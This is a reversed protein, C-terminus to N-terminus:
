HRPEVGLLHRVFFDMRRRAPYPREGVGHGAGPVILLDFDKDARVLADVVQMTSSPDVNRDLEGVTLLLKGTLNQAHTVNSNDAYEAGVPWGMWAENWWIKDMRNDHCGCDAAAVKYFDGHFLLAGLANQGGASGGFIGVRSLDMEPHKDAAARLWAIRDPFGADKLNKWCVDHFARSRWNTGMGDIQVVIFGLEALAHEREQLGWAKPVFFDQPGAYIKEVVPYKGEADFHSPRIIIGHIDTMGDRGKSFFREPMQWGTAVLESADAKELECVLSGDDAKRLETVPPQDVRSWGDIFFRRDPSFEWSHTGDGETLVTLGSGDCNVRALHVYYPDQGARIGMAKFWIQRKELDVRVVERMVWNGRTIQNKVAGTASDILYLHNWGDRESAWILEGTEDLWELYTKQSYDIFTESKEEVIVKVEGSEADVTLLRMLQHGRQNYLVAFRRSYPFWHVDSISWPSPFLEDNVPVAVRRTLDFLRPRSQAIRDGPKLYDYDHLKPQLQDRPSSEVLYVKREQAPKERMAVFKSGDPSWYFPERYRDDESGDHSLQIEENTEANRVWVNHERILARGTRDPETEERKGRQRQGWPHPARTEQDVAAETGGAEASFAARARGQKDRLLWTHGVFTHQLKRAGAKVTGYANLEGGADIWFIELDNDTRNIFTINTDSGGNISPRIEELAVQPAPPLDVAAERLGGARFDYEWNKNAFRFRVHSGDTSVEFRELPLQAAEVLEGSEQALTTALKGHDFAPRKNGILADVFVWERKGQPLDLQYWFADGGPLWHPEIRDRFVKGAIRERLSNAREYDAKSGQAIAACPILILLAFVLLRKM